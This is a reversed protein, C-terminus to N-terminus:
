SLNRFLVSVYIKFGLKYAGILYHPSATSLSPPRHAVFQKYRWYVSCGPTTDLNKPILLAPWDSRRASGSWCCMRQGGVQHASPKNVVPQEQLPPAIRADDGQVPNLKPGTGREM